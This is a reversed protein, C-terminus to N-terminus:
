LRDKLEYAKKAAEIAHEPVPIIGAQSHGVMIRCALDFIEAKRANDNSSMINYLLAMPHKAKFAEDITLPSGDAWKGIEYDGTFEKSNDSILTYKRM